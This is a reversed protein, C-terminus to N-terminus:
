LNCTTARLRNRHVARPLPKETLRKLKQFSHAVLQIYRNRYFTIHQIRRSRTGWRLLDPKANTYYEITTFRQRGFEYKLMFYDLLHGPSCGRYTEDFTTKLTILMVDSGIALQSSVLEDDFYLEYAIAREIASFGRLVDRYFRGQINSSHVATGAAGKWGKIELDGYRVVALDIERPAEIMKIRCQKGASTVRRLARSIQQRLKKSRSSWYGHFDGGMEISLTRSHPALEHLPYRTSTPFTSYDPDQCYLELATAPRPLANLLAPVENCSNIMVPGIQAQSPLFATTIGFKKLTLLLLSRAEQESANVAILERDTAFHYILPGIFRSDLLPHNQYASRNLKDWTSSYAEFHKRAPLIVWTM